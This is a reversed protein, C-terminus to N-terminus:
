KEPGDLIKSKELVTILKFLAGYVTDGYGFGLTTPGSKVYAEVSVDRENITIKSDPGALQHITNWLGDFDIM